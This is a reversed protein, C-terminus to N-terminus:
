FLNLDVSMGSLVEFSMSPPSGLSFLGLILKAIWRQWHCSFYKDIMGLDIVFSLVFFILLLVIAFVYFM